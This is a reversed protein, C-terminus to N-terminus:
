KDILSIYNNVVNKINFKEICEEGNLPYKILANNMVRILEDINGESVLFEKYEETLIERPGYNCDISVVKCGCALAEAIVLSFAEYKSTSVLLDANAMWKYVNKEWGIFQVFEDVGMKACLLELNARESGEGIIILNYNKYFKGQKYAKILLEPDKIKELRGCFMIYKRNYNIIENKLDMIMEINIPCYITTIYKPKVYYRDILEKSVGNSVTVIKRNNYTFRLIYKLLGKANEEYMSYVGHIVYFNNKSYKSLRCIFDSFPLHSTMLDIEENRNLSDIVRNLKFVSIIVSLIRNYKKTDLNIINIKKNLEYDIENDFLIITVQHNYEIMKNAINAIVREAGGKGLSNAILLINKSGNKDKTLRPNNHKEFMIPLLGIMFAFLLLYGLEYTLSFILFVLYLFKGYYDVKNIIIVSIIIFLVLGIIGTESLLQFITSHAQVYWGNPYTEFMSRFSTIGNGIIPSKEFLTSAARWMVLRTNMTVLGFSYNVFDLIKLLLYPGILLFVTGINVLRECINKNYRNFIRIALVIALSAMVGILITRSSSICYGLISILVLSTKWWKDKIFKMCVTIIIIMFMSAYNPDQAYGAIRINQGFFNFHEEGTYYGKYNGGMINKLEIGNWIFIMSIILLVGSIIIFNKIFDNNLDKRYLYFVLISLFNSINLIIMNMFDSMNIILGNNLWRVNVFMIYLYFISIIILLNSIKIAKIKEDKSKYLRYMGDGILIIALLVQIYRLDIGFPLFERNFMSIVFIFIFSNLLYKKINECKNM